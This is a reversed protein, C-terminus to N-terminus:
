IMVEPVTTKIIMISFSITWRREFKETRYKEIKTDIM